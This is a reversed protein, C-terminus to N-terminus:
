SHNAIRLFEDESGELMLKQALMTDADPVAAIPHACLTKIVRGSDDVQKVNRSRGREIRYLKRQGKSLLELTFHGKQQLEERQKPTLHERLLREARDKASAREAEVLVQRARYEETRRNAERVQEETANRMDILQENWATWIMTNMTGATSVNIPEGVLTNTASIIRNEMGEVFQVNWAGWTSATIATTNTTAATATVNLTCTYIDNWVQWIIQNDGATGSNTIDPTTTQTILMRGSQPAPPIASAANSALPM